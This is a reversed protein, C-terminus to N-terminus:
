IESDSVCYGYSVHTDLGLTVVEVYKSNLSSMKFMIGKPDLPQVNVYEGSPEFQSDYTDCGKSDCRSFTPNLSLSVSGGSILNFVKPEANECAGSNCLLKKAPFCVTNHEPLQTSNKYVSELAFNKEFPKNWDVEDFQLVQNDSQKGSYSWVLGITLVLIISIAIKNEKIWNMINFTIKIIGENSRRVVQRNGFM